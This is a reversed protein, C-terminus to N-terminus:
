VNEHTVSIQGWVPCLNPCCHHHVLFIWGSRLSTGSNGTLVTLLSPSACWLVHTTIRPCSIQLKKNTTHSKIILFTSYYLTNNYIARTNLNKMLKYRYSLRIQIMLCGVWHHVGILVNIKNETPDLDLKGIEPCQTWTSPSFPSHQPCQGPGLLPPGLPALSRKRTDEPLTEQYALHAKCQKSATRYITNLELDKCWILHRSFHNSPCIVTMGRNALEIWKTIKSM